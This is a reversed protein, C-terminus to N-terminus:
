LTELTEIAISVHKKWTSDTIYHEWNAEQAAIESTCLENIAEALIPVNNLPIIKAINYKRATITLSSQTDSVVMKKRFPAVSNLIGSQSLFSDKYYLAVIDCSAIAANFDAPNLYYDLWIVREEIQLSQAYNKYYEISIGANAPKGAVLLKVKKLHVMANMILEYNKEPRINGLVGIVYHNASTGRIQHLLDQNLGNFEYIGHPVAVTKCGNKYFSREPLYGHHFAIKMLRMVWHMSMRSLFKVPLYNERGPDHLIVGYTHTKLRRLLPYWFFSTLQDYDNFLVFCNSEKRLFRYLRLPNKFSRYIFYCKKILPFSTNIIDRHLIKHIGKSPAVDANEPLLLTCKDVRTDTSYAHFLAKAYEYNGGFSNINYIVVKM